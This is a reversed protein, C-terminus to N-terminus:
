WWEERFEEDGSALKGWLSSGGKSIGDYVGKFGNGIGTVVVKFGRVVTHGTKKGWGQLTNWNHKNDEGIGQGLNTFSLPEEGISRFTNACGVFLVCLIGLFLCHYFINGKM